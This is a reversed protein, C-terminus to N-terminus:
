MSKGVSLFYLTEGATGQKNTVTAGVDLGGLSGGVGVALDVDSSDYGVHYSLSAKDSLKLEGNGELYYTGTNQPDVSALLSVPGVDGGVNVEYSTTYTESLAVIYAIAGVNFMGFNYSGYLDIETGGADLGSAWTGFSLKDMEWDFGGQITATKGTQDVGRWVYDSVYSVNASVDAAMAPASMGAATVVGAAILISTFKKM